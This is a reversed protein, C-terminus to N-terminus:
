VGVAIPVYQNFKYTYILLYTHVCLQFIAQFLLQVYNYVVVNSVRSDGNIKLSHIPLPNILQTYFSILHAELCLVILPRLYHKLAVPHHITLHKIIFCKEKVRLTKPWPDNWLLQVGIEANLFALYYANFISRKPM